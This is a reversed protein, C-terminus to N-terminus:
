SSPAAVVEHVQSESNSGQVLDPFVIRIVDDVTDVFIFQLGEKVTKPVEVLDKKNWRPLIVTRIGARKAALVKEKVGGIPMVKGRLTIEGTMAIKPDVPKRTLLSVLATFMAIGASPGDKPIAGAPVHIHIDNKEYFKPDIGLSEARTRVLSLAAEASEKMVDGLQGTLILSKGGPMMTAEIFLIDGGTPTVALGTVVGIEGQREAVESYYLPPGLYREITRPTIRIKTKKLRGEAKERAIKRFIAGIQRELNRVGAERTYEHIVKLLAKRGFVIELDELGNERQQRPVLYQQAIHVKEEDTYGPIEIVEMRDLLPPPITATINATCIFLVKSLDFPVEIYHDSFAHNQEPDLVELLASAPDGRFDTGIKDVEDLMFVPNKSGAQRLGQIIRGPLAGIYTRRHGRIEAEDRIGGLSIRVFKRGLAKAISQGLSTKGVGPPGVFALIPGKTDKRLKRVALFELIRDKVRELDYHDEDLIKRARELDLNDETEKSWPLEILWDLYTRIVPYEPSGPTIGALRDLEKLAVKKVEEPMGAQEIKERLEEIEKQHRDTLGLERQIAKLQERLYYEREAKSMESRVEEQIKQSLRLIKLHQGLLQNLYQLRELVDFTELIKQKEEVKFNMYTAIFDALKDADPINVAVSVLEDTLYPSNQVIEQFMKLVSNKLADVEPGEPEEPRVEEVRARMFPETEVVELIKVRRIGQILIRMNGDPTRLMRLILSATGVSYIDEPGAEEVEEKKQTVTAILKDGKLVEDVLVQSRKTTLILPVVLHPFVVGGKIPLIPLQEPIQIDKLENNM